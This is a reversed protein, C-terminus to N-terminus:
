FKFFESLTMGLGKALKEVTVISAKKPNQGELNQLYKTSIQGRSALEEQTLNYKNRLHKLRKGLIICIDSKPNMSVNDLLFAAKGGDM